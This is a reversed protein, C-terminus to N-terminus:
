RNADSIALNLKLKNKCNSNSKAYYGKFVDVLQSIRVSDGKGQGLRFIILGTLYICNDPCILQSEM